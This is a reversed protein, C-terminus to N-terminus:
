QEIWDNFVSANDKSVLVKVDDYSHLIILMQRNGYAQIRSIAKRNVIYQRNARFFQIPDLRQKLQDLTYFIVHKTGNNMMAFTKKGNIVFHNIDAVDIIYSGNYTNSRLYHIYAACGKMGMSELMATFGQKECFLSLAKNTAKLLAKTEIPKLLYAIGNADFAKLAYESYATTFIIPTTVDICEFLSFCVGDELQIDCYIVDYDQQRLMAHELDILNTVPGEIVAHPYAQLIKKKLAEFNYIEDEVILAKM